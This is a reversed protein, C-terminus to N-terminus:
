LYAWTSSDSNQLISVCQNAPCPNLSALDSYKKPRVTGPVRPGCTAHLLAVPMPPEGPSVCIFAGRQIQSCGHWAWTQANYDEINKVTIGHSQATKTCTDGGAVTYTSCIAGGDRALLAAGKQGAVTSVFLLFPGALALFRPLLLASM